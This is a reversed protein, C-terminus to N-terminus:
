PGWILDNLSCILIVEEIKGDNQLDNVLSEALYTRGSGQVETIVVM